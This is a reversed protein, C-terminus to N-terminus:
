HTYRITSHRSSQTCGMHGRQTNLEVTSVYGNEPFTPDRSCYVGSGYAAVRARRFETQYISALADVSAFQQDFSPKSGGFDSSTARGTGHFARYWNEPDQFPELWKNGEKYKDLVNLGYRTWGTPTM